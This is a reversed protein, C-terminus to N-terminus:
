TMVSYIRIVPLTSFITMFSSASPIMSVVPYVTDSGGNSDIQYIQRSGYDSIFYRKLIPDYAVSEPATFAQIIAPCLILVILGILLKKM